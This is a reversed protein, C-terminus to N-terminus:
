RYMAPFALVRRCLVDRRRWFVAHLLNSFLRSVPMLIHFMDHVHFLKRRFLTLDDGSHKLFIVISVKAMESKNVRPAAKAM